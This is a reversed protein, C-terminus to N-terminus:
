DHIVFAFAHGLGPFSRAPFDLRCVCLGEGPTPRFMCPLELCRLRFEIFEEPQSSGLPRLPNGPLTFFANHHDRVLVVVPKRNFRPLRFADHLEKPFRGESTKFQVKGARKAPLITGALAAIASWQPKIAVSAFRLPLSRDTM